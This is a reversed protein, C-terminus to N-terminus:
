VPQFVEKPLLQPFHLRTQNDGGPTRNKSNPSLPKCKSSRAQLVVSICLFPINILVILKAKYSLNLFILYFYWKGLAIKM